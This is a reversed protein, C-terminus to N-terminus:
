LTFLKYPRGKQPCVWVAVQESYTHALRHAHPVDTVWECGWEDFEGWSLPQIAIAATTTTSM